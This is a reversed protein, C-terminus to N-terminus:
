RFLDQERERILAAAGPGDETTIHRGAGRVLIVPQQGDKRRALDACAALEDAVAIVTANLERGHADVGGRWDEVPGVGAIGVAVDCQGIRWARGFSDTIIVGPAVGTLERFRARLARASADPDLPLMLVVEEGPVNSADVGSNACIFGHRTETILVGGSVRVVTRAEDLVVQVHRPDKCQQAAIELAQPGPQVESLRRTRGELKSVAKHAIVIVDGDALPGVANGAQPGGPGEADLAAVVAAALDFGPEIEPLGQVAAATITM